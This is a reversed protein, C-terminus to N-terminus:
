LWMAMMAAVAHPLIVGEAVDAQEDVVHPLADVRADIGVIAYEDGNRSRKM